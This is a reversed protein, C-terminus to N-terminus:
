HALAACGPPKGPIGFHTILHAHLHQCVAEASSVSIANNLNIMNLPNVTTNHRAIMRLLCHAAYPTFMCPLCPIPYLTFMYPLYQAAALDLPCSLILTVMSDLQTNATAVLCRSGHMIHTHQREMNPQCTPAAPTIAQSTYQKAFHAPAAWGPLQRPHSHTTLHAHLHQCVAEASSVSIANNM